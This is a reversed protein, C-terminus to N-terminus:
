TREGNTQRNRRARRDRPAALAPQQNLVLSRSRARRECVGCSLVPGAAGWWGGGLAEGGCLWRARVVLRVFGRGGGTFLECAAGSHWIRMFKGRRAAGLVLAAAGLVGAVRAGRAAHLRHGLRYGPPQFEVSLQTGDVRPVVGRLQGRAVGAVVQPKADFAVEEVATQVIYM